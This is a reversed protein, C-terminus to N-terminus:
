DCCINSVIPVMKTNKMKITQNSTLQQPTDKLIRYHLFFLCWSLRFHHHGFISIRQFTIGRFGISPHKNIYTINLIYYLHNRCKSIPADELLETWAIPMPTEDQCSCPVFHLPPAMSLYNSANGFEKPSFMNIYIYINMCSDQGFLNNSVWCKLTFM